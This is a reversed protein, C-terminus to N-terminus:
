CLAMDTTYRLGVMQFHILIEIKRRGEKRMMESLCRREVFSTGQENGMVRFVEGLGELEWFIGDVMFVSCALVWSSVSDLEMDEDLLQLSRRRSNVSNILMWTPTNFSCLSNSALIHLIHLFCGGVPCSVTNSGLRERSVEREDHYPSVTSICAWGLTGSNWFKRCSFSLFPWFGWERFQFTRWCFPFSRGDFGQSSLFFHSRSWRSRHLLALLLAGLTNRMLDFLRWSYQMLLSQFFNDSSLRIPALTKSSWSVIKTHILYIQFYM